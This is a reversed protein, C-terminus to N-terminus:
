RAKRERDQRREILMGQVNLINQLKVNEEQLSICSDVLCTIEDELEQRTMADFQGRTLHIYTM